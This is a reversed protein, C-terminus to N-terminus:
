KHTFYIRVMFGLNFLKRDGNMNIYGIKMNIKESERLYIFILLNLWENIDWKSQKIYIITSYKILYIFKVSAKSLTPLLFLYWYKTIAKIHKTQSSM